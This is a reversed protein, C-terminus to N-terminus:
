IYFIQSELFMHNIVLFLSNAGDVNFVNELIPQLTEFAEEVVNDDVWSSKSEGLVIKSTKKNGVVLEAIVHVQRWCCNWFIMIVEMRVKDLGLFDNRKPALYLVDCLVM